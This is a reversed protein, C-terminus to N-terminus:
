CEVHETMVEVCTQMWGFATHKELMYEKGIAKGSLKQM